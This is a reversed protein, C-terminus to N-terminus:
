QESELFKTVLKLIQLALIKKGGEFPTVNYLSIGKHVNRQYCALSMLIVNKAHKKVKSQMDFSLYCSPSTTDVDSKLNLRRKLM